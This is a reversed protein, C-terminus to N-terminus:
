KSFEFLRSAAVMERQRGSPRQEQCFDQHTAGIVFMGLAWLMFVFGELGYSMWRHESMARVSANFISHEVTIGVATLFIALVLPIYKEM